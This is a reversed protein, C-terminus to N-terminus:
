CYCYSNGLWTGEVAQESSRNEEERIEKATPKKEVLKAVPLAGWLELLAVSLLVRFM